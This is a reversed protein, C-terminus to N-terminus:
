DNRHTAQTGALRDTSSHEALWRGVTTAIGPRHVPRSTGRSFEAVAPLGHSVGHVSVAYETTDDAPHDVPRAICIGPEYDYIVAFSVMLAPRARARSLRLREVARDRGRSDGEGLAFGREM